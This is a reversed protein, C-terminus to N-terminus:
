AAEKDSMRKVSSLLFFVGFRQRGTEPDNRFMKTEIHLGIGRLRFVCDSVRAFSAAYVPRRILGELVQRDHKSVVFSSLEDGDWYQYACAETTDPLDAWKNVRLANAPPREFHDQKQETKPKVITIRKLKLILCAVKRSDPLSMRM